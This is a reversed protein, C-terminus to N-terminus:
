TDAGGLFGGALAGLTGLGGGSRGALAALLATGGMSNSPPMIRAGSEYQKPLLFAIALALVLSIGATRSLIRRKRWLLSTNAIWNPTAVTESGASTVSSSMEEEVATRNNGNLPEEPSMAQSGLYASM